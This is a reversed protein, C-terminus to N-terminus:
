LLVFCLSISIRLFLTHILYFVSSPLSLSLSLSLHSAKSSDKNWYTDKNWIWAAANKYYIGM